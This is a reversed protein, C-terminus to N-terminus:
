NAVVAFFDRSYPALLRGAIGRQGPIVPVATPGGPHHVYLYGAVWAPNIDLEIARVAGASVLANALDTPSLQEGAAWVLQGTATIGLGSRAVLLGIRRRRRAYRSSRRRPRRFRRRTGRPPAGPGVSVRSRAMSPHHEVANLLLKGIQSFARM